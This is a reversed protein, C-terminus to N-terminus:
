RMLQESWVQNYSFQGSDELSLSPFDYARSLAENTNLPGDDGALINKPADELPMAGHFLCHELFERQGLESRAHEEDLPKIPHKITKLYAILDTM